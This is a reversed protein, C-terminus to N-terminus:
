LAFRVRPAGDRVNRQRLWLPVPPRLRVAGMAPFCYAARGDADRHPYPGRGPALCVWTVSERRGSGAEEDGHEQTYRTYGRVDAILFTRVPVPGEDRGAATIPPEIDGESPSGDERRVGFPYAAAEPGEV